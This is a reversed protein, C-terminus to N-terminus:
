GQRKLQSCADEGSWQIVLFIIKLSVKTLSSSTGNWMWLHNLKMAIPRDNHWEIDLTIPEVELTTAQFSHSFTYCKEKCMQENECEGDNNESM